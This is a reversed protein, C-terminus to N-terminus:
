HKIEVVDFGAKTLEDLPYDGPDSLHLTERGISHCSCLYLGYERAEEETDFLEDDIDNIGDSYKM